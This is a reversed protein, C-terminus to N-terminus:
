MMVGLGLSISLNTGPRCDRVPLGLCRGGAGMATRRSTSWSSRTKKLPGPARRSVMRMAALHGEWQHILHPLPLPPAPPFSPSLRGAAERPGQLKRDRPHSTVLVCSGSYLSKSIGTEQVWTICLKYSHLHSIHGKIM